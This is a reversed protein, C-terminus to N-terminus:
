QYSLWILWSFYAIVNQLCDCYEVCRKNTYIPLTLKPNLYCFMEPLPCPAMHIPRPFWIDPWTYIHICIKIIYIIWYKAWTEVLCLLATIATASEHQLIVSRSAVIIVIDVDSIIQFYLLISWNWGDSIVSPCYDSTISPWLITASM